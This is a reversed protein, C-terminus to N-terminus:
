VLELKQPDRPDGQEATAPENSRAIEIAETSNM